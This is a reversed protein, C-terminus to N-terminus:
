YGFSFKGLATEELHKQKVNTYNAIIQKSFILYPPINFSM